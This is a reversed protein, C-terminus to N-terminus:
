ILHLLTHLLSFQHLQRFWQLHTHILQLLLTLPSPLLTTRIKTPLLLIHQHHILMRLQNKITFVQLSIHILTNNNSHCHSNLLSNNTGKLILQKDLQMEEVKIPCQVKKSQAISQFMNFKAATIELIVICALQTELNILHM